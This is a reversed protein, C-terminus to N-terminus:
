PTEQAGLYQTLKAVILIGQGLPSPAKQFSGFRAQTLVTFQKQLEGLVLGSVLSCPEGRYGGLPTRFDVAREGSRNPDEYSGHHFSKIHLRTARHYLGWIIRTYGGNFSNQGHTTHSLSAPKCFFDVCGWGRVGWLGISLDRARCGVRGLGLGVYGPHASSLVWQHM